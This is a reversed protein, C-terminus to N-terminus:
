KNHVYRSDRHKCSIRTIIYATVIGIIAIATLLALRTEHREKTAMYAQRNAPAEAEAAVGNTAIAATLAHSAIALYPQTLTTTM